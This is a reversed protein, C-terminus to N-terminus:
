TASHVQGDVVNVPLNAASVVSRVSNLPLVSLFLQESSLNVTAVRSDLNNTEKMM